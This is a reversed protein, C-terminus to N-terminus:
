FPDEQILFTYGPSELNNLPGNCFEELCAIFLSRAFFASNKKALQATTLM